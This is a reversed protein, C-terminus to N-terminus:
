IKDNKTTAQKRQKRKKPFVYRISKSGSLSFLKRKQKSKEQGAKYIYIKNKKNKM